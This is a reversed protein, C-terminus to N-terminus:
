AFNQTAQHLACAEKDQSLVDPYKLRTNLIQVSLDTQQLESM